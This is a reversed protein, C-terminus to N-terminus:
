KHGKSGGRSPMSVHSGMSKDTGFKHGMDKNLEKKSDKIKDRTQAKVKEKTEKVKETKDKDNLKLNLDQAIKGWGTKHDGSQRMAMIKQVNEDNIGGPMQSALSFVHDMEGYGLKQGRLSNIQDDSVKFQKKLKDAKAGTVEDQTTASTEEDAGFSLTLGTSSLLCVALLIIYEKKM